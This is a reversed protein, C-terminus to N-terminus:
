SEESLEDELVVHFQHCNGCYKQEIDNKNYSVMECILCKIAKQGKSAILEYTPKENQSSMKRVQMKGNMKLSLKM